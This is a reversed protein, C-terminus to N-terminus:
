DGADILDHELAAIFVTVEATAFSAGIRIPSSRHGAATASCQFM